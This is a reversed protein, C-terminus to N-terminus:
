CLDQNLSLIGSRILLQDSHLAIAELQRLLLRPNKSVPLIISWDKDPKKRSSAACFLLLIATGDCCDYQKRKKERTKNKRQNTLERSLHTNGVPIIRDTPAQFDTLMKKLRDGWVLNLTANQVHGTHGSNLGYYMGEQFTIVIICPIEKGAVQINFGAACAVVCDALVMKWPYNMDHFSNPHLNSYNM